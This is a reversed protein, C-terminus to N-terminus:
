ITVILPQTQHSILKFRAVKEYEIVFRVQYYYLPFQDFLNILVIKMKFLHKALVIFHVM